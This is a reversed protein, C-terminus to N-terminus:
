KLVVYGHWCWGLAPSRAAGSLVFGESDARRVEFQGSVVVGSGDQVECGSGPRTSDQALVGNADKVCCALCCSHLVCAWALRIFELKLGEYRGPIARLVLYSAWIKGLDDSVRESVSYEAGSM